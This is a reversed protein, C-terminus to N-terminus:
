WRRHLYSAFSTVTLSNLGRGLKGSISRLAFM